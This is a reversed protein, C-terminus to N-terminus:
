CFSSAWSRLGGYSAAAPPTSIACPASVASTTSLSLASENRRHRCGSCGKCPWDIAPTSTSLSAASDAIIGALIAWSPCFPAPRTAAVTHVRAGAISPSDSSRTQPKPSTAPSGHSTTTRTVGHRGSAGRRRTSGTVQIRWHEPSFCASFTRYIKRMHPPVPTQMWSAIGNSWVSAFTDYCARSGADALTNCAGPLHGASVRFRKTAECLGLVRLLEQAFPNDSYLQNTWAVACTNDSWARVHTMTSLTSTLPSDMWDDSWLAAALSVCMLERVNITFGCSDSETIMSAEESDFFVQIFRSRAPDLVALGDNSADMYLHVDIQLDARFMSTPLGTWQGNRLIFDFWQLDQKVAPSVPIRGRQPARKCASHVRQYFPKASRLCFSVHRLSGLLCQLEHGSTTSRRSMATVRDLAKTLKSQPMSVTRQTTDFDLGLVEIRSSWISFKKDNIARPGLVAMMALRLATEAAELRGPSDVEVMIHDDVWEYAFFPEQDASVATLTAPSEHAVIWSIAGGFAGYYSPSGTWGFPASLDVVLAGLQPLRAGMWCVHSEELMVHRFASKVDGKLIRIRRGPHHDACAEIRLAIAVVHRYEIVPFGTQVSASNASRGRPFSLDHILRVEDRPDADKKPVAGFPSFHVGQWLALVRDDVVLYQGADQGQRVSRVVANLHRNASQHNSPASQRPPEARNWVPVVGHAAINSLLERHRYGQLLLNYREPFLAKNPRPDDTSQGRVLAVVDPLSLRATLVLDSLARQLTHNLQYRVAGHGQSTKGPTAGPFPISWALLCERLAEDRIREAAQLQRELADRVRVALSPREQHKAQSLAASTDRAQKVSV